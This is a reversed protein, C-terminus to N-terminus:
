KKGQDATLAFSKTSSKDPKSKARGLKLYQGHSSCQLGFQQLLAVLQGPFSHAFHEIKGFKQRAPRRSGRSALTGAAPTRQASKYPSNAVASQSPVNVM